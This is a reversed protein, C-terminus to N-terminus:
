FSDITQENNIGEPQTITGEPQVSTDIGKSMRYLKCVKSFFENILCYHHPSVINYILQYVRITIELDTGQLNNLYRLMFANPERSM